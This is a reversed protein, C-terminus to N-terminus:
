KNNNHLINGSCLFDTMNLSKLRFNKEDLSIQIMHLIIRKGFKLFLIKFYIWKVIKLSNKFICWWCIKHCGPFSSDKNNMTLWDVWLFYYLWLIHLYKTFLIQFFNRRPTEKEQSFNHTASFIYMVLSEKILKGVAYINDIDTCMNSGSVSPSLFYCWIGSNILSVHFCESFYPLIPYFQTPLLVLGTKRASPVGTVVGM